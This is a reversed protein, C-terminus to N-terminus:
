SIFFLGASYVIFLHSRSKWWSIEFYQMFFGLYESSRGKFRIPVFLPRSQILM